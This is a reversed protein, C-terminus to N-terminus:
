ALLCPSFELQKLLRVNNAYFRVEKITYQIALQDKELPDNVPERRIVNSTSVGPLPDLSFIIRGGDYFTGKPLRFVVHLMLFELLAENPLCVFGLFPIYRKIVDQLLERLMKPQANLDKESGDNLVKFAKTPEIDYVM